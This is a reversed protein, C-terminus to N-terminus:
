IAFKNINPQQLYKDLTITFSLKSNYKNFDAIFTLGLLNVINKILYSELGSSLVLNDLVELKGTNIELLQGINTIQTSNLKTGIVLRIDKESNILHLEVQPKENSKSFKDKGALAIGTLIDITKGILVELLKPNTVTSVRSPAILQKPIISDVVSLTYEQQLDDPLNLNYEIDMTKAQNLNQEYVKVFLRFIDTLETNSFNPLLTLESTTIIDTEYKSLLDLYYNITALKIIVPDSQLSKLTSIYKKHANQLKIESENLTDGTSESSILFIFKDLLGNPNYVPTVKIIVQPSEKQNLIKLTYGKLILNIKQETISFKRKTLTGLSDLLRQTTLIKGSEDILNVLDTITKGQKSNIIKKAADNANLVVLDRDTTFVYDDIQELIIEQSSLQRFLTKLVDSKLNYKQAVLNTVPTIVLISAFYLLVSGFDQKVLNFLNQDLKIDLLIVAIEMTLFSLATWFNFYLALGVIYLHILIFFPSFIAGTSAILLQIFFTIIFILLWNKIYAKNKFYKQSNLIILLTVILALLIQQLIIIKVKFYLLVVLLISSLIFILTKSLINLM